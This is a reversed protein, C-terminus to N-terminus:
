GAQLTSDADLGVIVIADIGANLSGTSVQGFGLM